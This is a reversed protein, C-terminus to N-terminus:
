CEKRFTNCFLFSVRRLYEPADCTELLKNGEGQYFAESDRLIAPELDRKYVSPGDGNVRLLLLVDV